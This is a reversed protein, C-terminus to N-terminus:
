GEGPERLLIKPVPAAGSDSEGWVISRRESPVATLAQTAQMGNLCRQALEQYLRTGQLKWALEHERLERVFRAPTGAVLSRAAVKEGAKVFSSAAVFCAEGLVARDMVVANMGVLVNRGVHCGHLVAAHGVHGDEEVVVPNGPFSHLVCSDQVNAGARIEIAGFDGRLSALPGIYCGAGIIVDGILIASPHVFASPDIVPVVGDLSYVQPQM